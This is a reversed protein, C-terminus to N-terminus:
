INDIHEACLDIIKKAIEKIEVFLKRTYEYGLPEVARIVMRQGPRGRKIEILGLRELKDLRKRLTPRFM